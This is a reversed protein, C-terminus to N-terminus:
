NKGLRCVFVVCLTRWCYRWWRLCLACAPRSWLIRDRPDIVNARVARPHVYVYKHIYIRMRVSHYMRVIYRIRESLLAIANETRNRDTPNLDSWESYLSNLSYRILQCFDGSVKCIYIQLRKDKGHIIMQIKEKQVHLYM